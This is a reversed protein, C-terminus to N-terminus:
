GRGGCNGAPAAALGSHGLPAAATGACFLVEESGGFGRAGGRGIASTLGAAPEFGIATGATALASAAAADAAPSAAAKAAATGDASHGLARDTGGVSHGPAGDMGGASQGPAGAADSLVAAGPSACGLSAGDPPSSSRHGLRSAAAACCGATIGVGSSSVPRMM